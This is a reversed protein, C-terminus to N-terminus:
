EFGTWKLQFLVADENEKIRVFTAITKRRTGITEKIATVYYEGSCCEKLWKKVISVEKPATMKGLGFAHWTSRDLRNITTNSLFSM